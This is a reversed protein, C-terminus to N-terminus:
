YLLLLLLFTHILKHLVSSECIGTESYLHVNQIILIQKVFHSDVKKLV